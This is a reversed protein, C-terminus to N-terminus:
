KVEELEVEIRPNEKDVAFDMVRPLVMCDDPYVIGTLSDSLIKFINDSDRRRNNAWWIWVRMIVKQDKSPMTWGTQQAWARATWATQSIYASAEVTKIRKKISVNKYAHNVSPPLPLILRGNDSPSGLQTEAREVKRTLSQRNM